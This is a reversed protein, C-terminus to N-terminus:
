SIFGPKVFEVGNKLLEEIFIKYYEPVM